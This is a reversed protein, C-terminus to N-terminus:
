NFNELIFQDRTEIAESDPNLPTDLPFLRKIEKGKPEILPENLDIEPLQEKHMLAINHLVAAAHIINRTTEEKNALISTLCKFRKKWLEVTQSVNYTNAHAKNYRLQANNKPNNVPTLVNKMPTYSSNALLYGPIDQSELYTKIDSINFIKSEHTSGPWRCFFDM